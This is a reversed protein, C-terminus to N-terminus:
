LRKGARGAPDRLRNALHHWVYHPLQADQAGCHLWLDAAPDRPPEYPAALDVTLCHRVRDTLVLEQTTFCILLLVKPRFLEDAPPFDNLSQRADEDDVLAARRFPFSLRPLIRAM